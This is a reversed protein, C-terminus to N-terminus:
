SIYTMQLNIKFYLQQYLSPSKFLFTLKRKDTDRYIICCTDRYIGANFFEVIQLLFLKISIEAITVDQSVIFILTVCDFTKFRM